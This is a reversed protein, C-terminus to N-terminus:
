ISVLLAEQGGDWRVGLIQPTPPEYVDM